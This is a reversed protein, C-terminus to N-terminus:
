VWYYIGGWFIVMKIPQFNGNGFPLQKQRLNNVMRQFSIDHFDYIGAPTNWILDGNMMFILLGWIFGM